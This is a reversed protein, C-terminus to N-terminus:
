LRIRRYHLSFAVVVAGDGLGEDLVEFRWLIYLTLAFNFFFM